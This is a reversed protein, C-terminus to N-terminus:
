VTSNIDILAYRSINLVILREFGSTRVVEPGLPASIDCARKISYITYINEIGTRGGCPWNSWRQPGVKSTATM